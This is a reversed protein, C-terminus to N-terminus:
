FIFKHFLIFKQRSYIWHRSCQWSCPFHKNSSYLLQHSLWKLMLQVLSKSSCSFCGHFHDPWDNLQDNAGAQSTLIQLSEQILHRWLGEIFWRLHQEYLLCRFEIVRILLKDHWDHMMFVKLILKFVPSAAWHSLNVQCARPETWLVSMSFSSVFWLNFEPGVVHLGYVRPHNVLGMRPISRWFPVNWKYVRIWQTTIFILSFLKTLVILEYRDLQVLYSISFNMILPM